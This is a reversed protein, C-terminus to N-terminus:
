VIDRLDAQFPRFDHTIGHAKHPLAVSEKGFVAVPTGILHLHQLVPIGQQMEHGVHVKSKFGSHWRGMFCLGHLLQGISLHFLHRLGVAHKQAPGAPHPARLHPDVVAAHADAVLRHKGSAAVGSVTDGAHVHQAKGKLAGGAGFLCQLGGDGDKLAVSLAAVAAVVM